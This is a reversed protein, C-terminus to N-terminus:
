ELRSDKPIVIKFSKGFEQQTILEITGKLKQTVLNYVIHAGLGSGGQGRKTTFFPEFIQSMIDETLKCGDDTFMLVISNQASTVKITVKGAQQEAFAHTLSNLVLNNTIQAIAGPYSFINIDDPCELTLVINSSKVKPQLSLLINQLYHQLNLQRADDVVSDVAILKFGEILKVAREINRLSLEFGQDLEQTFKTLQTSTLKQEHLSDIIHLCRDKMFSISTLVIGIPTNVEHAVGAVLGGLSAMKENELLQFQTQKLTMLTHNLEENSKSLAHTREGVRQELEINLINLAQEAKLRQAVETELSNITSLQQKAHSELMERKQHHFNVQEFLEKPSLQLQAFFQSFYNALQEQEKNTIIEIGNFAKYASAMGIVGALSNIATNKLTSLEAININTRNLIEAKALCQHVKNDALLEPMYQQFLQKILHTKETIQISEPEDNNVDYHINEVDVFQHAVKQEEASTRSFLSVAIYFFTNALLSWVLSNTLPSAQQIALFHEPDFWYFFGTKQELISWDLWGSRVVSPLLASYFWLSAGVVLGSIAGALNGGRWILGGILAPAFQATAIFSITGIKVILQSDGIVRYYFLSLFLVLLVMLWRLPLVQRKLPSLVPFSMVTPMVIHNTLMTSLTMASIMIMGTAAAFGGLFTIIAITVANDLLPLSLLLLNTSSNPDASLIGALAVPFTFLNILLLYLPFLWKARDLFNADACEVIGVHFQRPLTIIGLAGMLMFSLWSQTSLQQMNSQINEITAVEEFLHLVGPNIIYCIWLTGILMAVIKFLSEFALAVMMGPHKETPDLHRVGFIITFFAMTLVILIDFYEVLLSNQSVDPVLLHFSDIISKLQITLYPVIGLLCLISILAALAQSRQYRVSIFDAISTSHFENKLLVMKKLLPTMFIFTLTTGLYLAVPYLGQKTSIAINGFFTWSTCFVALSLAYTNASNRVKIARSSSSQGWQAICFLVIIYLGLLLLLQNFSIM